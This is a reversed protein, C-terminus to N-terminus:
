GTACIPGWWLSPTLIRADTLACADWDLAPLPRAAAALIEELEGASTVGILGIAIEPRSLVFGLAAALKTTGAAALRARLTALHPAADSLHEPPAEMLLLGQLFLSRAHIEVGMDQLRALTGDKLLRQDLLSFPLQMVDPKLRAALAAPDDAVYTSIGIKAFVGEAKLRQLAPWLAADELDAAAHVLLTDARPLAAKSARARAVVTEVGDKVSITKTVIRFPATDLAALVSEAEGYNAATDLVGIGAQAARALIAAAEERSVQGRSNSVGYAQGFQVTGLGLKTMYAAGGCTGSDGAVRHPGTVRHWISERARAPWASAPGDIRFDANPEGPGSLKPRVGSHGPALMAPQLGPWWPAILSAYEGPLAPSVDYDIGAPDANELWEVNAGFRAGGGMDLTLHVGLGGPEPLPYVLHRFSSRGSLTAYSGKALFLPPVTLGEILGAVRQSWLGASNVLIRCELVLAESGSEVTLRYGGPTRAIAKVEAGCVLHAGAGEADGLLALLYQHSDFIGTLPSFLGREAPLREPELGAIEAKTLRKLDIVDNAAANTAVSVLKAEQGRQAVILKGLRRHPVGHNACFDYLLDKARAPMAAGETLGASLLSRCPNSRQQACSTEMGFHATKELIFTELGTIALARAVALGVVGAGVVVADCRLQESMGGGRGPRLRIADSCARLDSRRAFFSHSSADTVAQGGRLPALTAGFAGCHFFAETGPAPLFPMPAPKFFM